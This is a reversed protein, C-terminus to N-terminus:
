RFIYQSVPLTISLFIFAVIIRGITDNIPNWEYTVPDIPALYTADPHASCEVADLLTTNYWMMVGFGVLDYVDTIDVDITFNEGLRATYEIPNLSILPLEPEAKVPQIGFSFLLRCFFMLAVVIGIVAKLKM